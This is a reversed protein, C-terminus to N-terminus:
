LDRKDKKQQKEVEKKLQDYNKCWNTFDCNNPCEASLFKKCLNKDM